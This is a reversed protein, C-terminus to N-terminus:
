AAHRRVVPRERTALFARYAVRRLEREHLSLTLYRNMTVLQAVDGPLDSTFQRQAHRRAAEEYHTCLSM